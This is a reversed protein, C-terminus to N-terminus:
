AGGPVIIVHVARPQDVTGYEKGTKECLGVELMDPGVRAKCAGTAM